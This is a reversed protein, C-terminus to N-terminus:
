GGNSNGGSNCKGNAKGKDHCNGKQNDDGFPIQQQVQRQRQKDKQKDDRLSRSKNKGNCDRGDDQVCHLVGFFGVWCWGGSREVVLRWGKDNCNGKQNDDGFPIQQQKWFKVVVVWLFCWLWLWEGCSGVRLGVM